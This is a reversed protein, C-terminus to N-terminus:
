NVSMNGVSKRKNESRKNASESISVNKCHRKRKWRRERISGNERRRHRRAKWTRERLSVKENYKMASGPLNSRYSSQLDNGELLMKQGVELLRDM